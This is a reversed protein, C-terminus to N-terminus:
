KSDDIQIKKLYTLTQDDLLKTALRMNYDQQSEQQLKEPLPNELFENTSNWVTNAFHIYDVVDKLTKNETLKEILENSEIGGIMKHIAGAYSIVARNKATHDGGKANAAIIYIDHIQKLLEANDM